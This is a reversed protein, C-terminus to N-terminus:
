KYDGTIIIIEARTNQMLANILVSIDDIRFLHSENILDDGCGFGEIYSFRNSLEQALEEESHDKFVAFGIVLAGNIILYDIHWFPKRPGCAYRYLRAYLGGRGLASGVYAYYGKSLRFRKSRTIITLFSPVKVFLVYTGKSELFKKLNKVM